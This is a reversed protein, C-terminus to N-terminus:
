VNEFENDLATDFTQEATSELNMAEAAQCDNSLSLISPPVALQESVNPFFQKQNQREKRKEKVNKVKVRM